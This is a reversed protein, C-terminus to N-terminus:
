VISIVLQTEEGSAVREKTVAAVLMAPENLAALGPVIGIAVVVDPAIATIVEYLM